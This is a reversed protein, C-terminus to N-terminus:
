DLVTRKALLSVEFARIRLNKALDYDAIPPFESAPLHATRSAKLILPDM